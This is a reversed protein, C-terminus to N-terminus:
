AVEGEPTPVSVSQGTRGALKRSPDLVRGTGFARAPEGGISPRANLRGRNGEPARAVALDVLSSAGRLGPRGVECSCRWACDLRGQAPYADWVRCRQVERAARPAAAARGDEPPPTTRGARERSSRRPAAGQPGRHPPLEARDGFAWPCLRRCAIAVAVWSTVGMAAGEQTPMWWAVPSGRSM